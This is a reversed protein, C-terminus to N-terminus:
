SVTMKGSRSDDFVDGWGKGLRTGLTFATLDMYFWLSIRRKKKYLVLKSMESRMDEESYWDRKM